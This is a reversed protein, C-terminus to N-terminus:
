MEKRGLLHQPISENFRSFSDLASILKLHSQHPSQNGVIFCVSEEKRCTTGNLDIITSVCTELSDRPCLPSTRFVKRREQVCSGHLLRQGNDLGKVLVVPDMFDVRSM